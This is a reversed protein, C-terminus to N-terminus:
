YVGLFLVNLDNIIQMDVDITINREQEIMQQTTTVGINGNRHAEHVLKGDHKTEGSADDKTANTIYKDLDGEGIAGAPTDLYKSLGGRKDTSKDDTIDTSGERM